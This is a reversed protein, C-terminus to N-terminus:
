QKRRSFGLSALGLGLLALTMPEPVNNDRRTYTYVIEAGCGAVTSQAAVINGGGGQILLGSLSNCTVAFNGGGAGSLSPRIASLDLTLFDSDTFPGFSVTAGSALTQSGTSATLGVSIPFLIANLAPISSGFLLDVIGTANVTQSQAATNTLTISTTMLGSLFLDADTLTGLNSDFLGLNGTQTIETTQLPNSFSFSVTDASASTALAISAVLLSLRKVLCRWPSQTHQEEGFSFL